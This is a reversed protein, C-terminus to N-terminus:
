EAYVHFSASTTASSLYFYTADAARTVTLVPLSANALNPDLAPILFRPKRALGHAVAVEQNAVSSTTVPVLHGAFNTAAVTTTDPAGFALTKFAERVFGIFTRRMEAPLTNLLSELYGVAAM